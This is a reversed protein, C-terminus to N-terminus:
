FKGEDERLVMWPSGGAKAYAHTRMPMLTRMIGSAQPLARGEWEAAAAEAKGSAGTLGAESFCLPLGLLAQRKRDPGKPDPSLRCFHLHGAVLASLAQLM